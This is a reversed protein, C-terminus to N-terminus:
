ITVLEVLDELKGPGIGDVADLEEVSSFLGKKQRYEVIRGALEPGVGPLEELDSASATNLNILGVREGPPAGGTVPQASASSPVTIKMGDSVRAALNLQGLDAEPVPGGAKSVADSVRSGENLIYLGPSVVAGAVHVTISPAKERKGDAGEVVEIKAPRSRVMSYIGGLAIAAALVLVAALQARTLSEAADELSGAFRRLRARM